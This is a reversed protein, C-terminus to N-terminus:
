LGSRDQFIIPVEGKPYIVSRHVTELYKLQTSLKFKRIIQFQSSWELVNLYLIM